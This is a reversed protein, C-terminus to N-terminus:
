DHKDHQHHCHGRGVGLVQLLLVCGIGGILGYIVRASGEAPFITTVLNFDALGVLGWNIAGVAAITSITKGFLSHRM